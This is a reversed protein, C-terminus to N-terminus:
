GRPYTDGVKYSEAEAKRACVRKIGKETGDTDIALSWSDKPCKVLNSSAATVEANWVNLVKGKPATNCATLSALAILAATVIATFKM